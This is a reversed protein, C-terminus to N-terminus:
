TVGIVQWSRAHLKKTLRMFTQYSAVMSDEGAIINKFKALMVNGRNARRGNGRNARRDAVIPSVHTSESENSHM